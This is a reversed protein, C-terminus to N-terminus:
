QSPYTAILGSAASFQLLGRYAGSDRGAPSHCDHLGWHWAISRCTLRGIGLWRGVEMGGVETEWCRCLPVAQWCPLGGAAWRRQGSGGAFGRQACGCGESLRSRPSRHLPLLCATLQATTPQREPKRRPERTSTM